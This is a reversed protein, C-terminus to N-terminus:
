DASISDEGGLDDEVFYFLCFWMTALICCLWPVVVGYFVWDPIGLGLPTRLTAPDRNFTTLPGCLAGISPGTSAPHPPHSLYGNLYCYTCSYVLCVTWLIIIIRAERM